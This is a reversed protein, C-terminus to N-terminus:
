KLVRKLAPLKEPEGLDLLSIDNLSGVPDEGEPLLSVREKKFSHLISKQDMKESQVFIQRSNLLLDVKIRDNMLRDQLIRSQSQNPLVGPLTQDREQAGGRFRNRVDTQDDLM